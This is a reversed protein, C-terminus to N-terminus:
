KLLLKKINNILINIDKPAPNIYKNNYIVNKYVCKNKISVYQKIIMVITATITICMIRFFENIQTEKKLNTKHYIGQCIITGGDITDDIFHSTIGMFQTSDNFSKEIAGFGKYSPLLSPHFNIIKNKYKKLINGKLLKNFTLFTYDINNKDFIDCIKDCLMERQVWEYKLFVYKKINSYKNNNIIKKYIGSKNSDFIFLKINVNNVYKLIYDISIKASGSNNSMMFAINYTNKM